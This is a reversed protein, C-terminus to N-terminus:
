IMSCAIIVGFEITIIVIELGLIVYLINKRM